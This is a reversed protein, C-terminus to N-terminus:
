QEAGIVILIKNSNALDSNIELKPSYDSLTEEIKKALESNPKTCYIITESYPNQSNGVESISINNEELTEKVQNAIGPIGAGNLIVIQIDEPTQSENTQNTSEKHDSNIDTKSPTVFPYNDPKQTTTTTALKDIESGEAIIQSQSYQSSTNNSLSFILIFACIGIIIFLLGSQSKKSKSYSKATSKKKRQTPRPPRIDFIKSM